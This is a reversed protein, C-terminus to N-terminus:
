YSQTHRFVLNGAETSFDPIQTNPTSQAIASVGMLFAIAQM